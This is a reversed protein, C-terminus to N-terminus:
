GSGEWDINLSRIFGIIVKLSVQKLEDPSLTRTGLHKLRTCFLAACWCLVHEASEEETRCFRCRDTTSLGMIRLHYRLPVHGTFFGTVLRLEPKSLVLLEDTRSASPDIFRKAQRLGPISRWCSTHEKLEWRKVAAKLHGKPVGCFPEPGIFPSSAGKRALGGAAENGETGTHGPAWMLTVRNTTALQKLAALCDWVLRSEITHSELAKVAAQSDSIIYIKASNLGRTLGIKACLEIAHIEAQFISAFLGLSKSLAIGNGSIGIGVGEKTKSGDTYWVMSGREFSPGGSSWGDREPLVVRFPKNFDLKGPMCDFPMEVSHDDQFEKLVRLHGVMNGAKIKGEAQVRLAAIAAEKKIHLHLPMLGLLAEMAATPCTKM